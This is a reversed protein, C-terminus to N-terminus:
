NSIKNLKRASYGFKIEALSILCQVIHASLKTIKNFNRMKQTTQGSTLYSPCETKLSLPRTQKAQSSLFSSCCILFDSLRKHPTTIRRFNTTNFGINFFHNRAPNKNLDTKLNALVERHEFFRLFYTQKCIKLNSYQRMQCDHSTM